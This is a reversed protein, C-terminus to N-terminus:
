CKPVAYGFVVEGGQIQFRRRGDDAPPLERAFVGMRFSAYEEPSMASYPASGRRLNELDFESVWQWRYSDVEGQYECLVLDTMEDSTRLYFGRGCWIREKPVRITTMVMM